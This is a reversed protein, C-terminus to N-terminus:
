NGEGTTSLGGGRSEPYLRCLHALCRSPLASPFEPRARPDHLAGPLSPGQASMTRFSVRQCNAGLEEGLCVKPTRFLLSKPSPSLYAPKDEGCDCWQAQSTADRGRGARVGVNERYKGFRNGESDSDLLRSAWPDLLGTSKRISERDSSVGTSFPSNVCYIETELGLVHAKAFYESTCSNNLRCPSPSHDLGWRRSIPM